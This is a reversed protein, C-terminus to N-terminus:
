RRLVVVSGYLAFTCDPSGRERVVELLANVTVGESERGMRILWQELGSSRVGGNLRQGFVVTAARSVGRGDVAAITDAAQRAPRYATGPASRMFCKGVFRGIVASRGHVAYILRSSGPSVSVAAGIARKELASRAREAPASGRSADGGGCGSAAFLGVLAVGVIPRMSESVRGVFCATGMRPSRHGCRFGLV